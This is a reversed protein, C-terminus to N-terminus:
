KPNMTTSQDLVKGHPDYIIQNGDRDITITAILEGNKDRLYIRGASFTTTGIQNGDRDNLPVTKPMPSQAIAVTTTLALALTTILSRMKEEM